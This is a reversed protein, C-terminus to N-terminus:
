LLLFKLTIRQLCISAGLEFLQTLLMSSPLTKAAISPSTMQDFILQFMNVYISELICFILLPICGRAHVFEGLIPVINHMIVKSIVKSQSTFFSVKEISILAHNTM